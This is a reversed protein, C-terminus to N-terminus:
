DCRYYCIPLSDTCSHFLPPPIPKGAMVISSKAAKAVYYKYFALGLGSFTGGVSIVNSWATDEDSEFSPNAGVWLSQISHILLLCSIVAMFIGITFTLRQEEIEKEEAEIGLFHIERKHNSSHMVSNVVSRPSPSVARGGHGMISFDQYDDDGAATGARHFDHYLLENGNNGEGGCFTTDRWQLFYVVIVSGATDIFAMLSLAYMSMSHLSWASLFSLVTLFAGIIISLYASVICHFLPSQCDGTYCCFCIRDSDGGSDSGSSDGLLGM